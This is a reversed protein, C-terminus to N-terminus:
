EAEERDRDRIKAWEQYGGTLQLYREIRYELQALRASLIAVEGVSVRQLRHHFWLLFTGAVLLGLAFAMAWFLIGLCLEGISYGAMGGGGAMPMIM